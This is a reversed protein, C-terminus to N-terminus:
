LTLEVLGNAHSPKRTYLTKRKKKRLPKFNKNNLNKVEKSLKIGLCKVKKSVITHILTPGQDGERETPPHHISFSKIQAPKNHWQGRVNIFKRVMAVSKPPIDLTYYGSM